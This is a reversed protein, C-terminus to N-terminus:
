PIIFGFNETLANYLFQCTDAGDNPGVGEDDADEMIFRFLDWLIRGEITDEDPLGEDYNIWRDIEDAYKKM